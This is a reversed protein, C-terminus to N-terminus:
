PCNGMATGLIVKKVGKFVVSVRVKRYKPICINGPEDLVIANIKDEFITAIHEIFVSVLGEEDFYKVPMGINMPAYEKLFFREGNIGISIPGSNCDFGNVITTYKGWEVGVSIDSKRLVKDIIRESPCDGGGGSDTLSFSNASAITSLVLASIFLLVKALLKIRIERSEQMGSLISKFRDNATLQKLKAM